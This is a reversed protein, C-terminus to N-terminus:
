FIFGDISQRPSLIVTAAPLFGFAFPLPLLGFGFIFFRRALFEIQGRAM